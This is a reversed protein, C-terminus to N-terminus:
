KNLEGLLWNSMKESEFERIKNLWKDTTHDKITLLMKLIDILKDYGYKNRFEMLIKAGKFRSYYVYKNSRELDKIPPCEDIEKKYKNIINKYSFDTIEHEMYLWSSLEAISENLWDEWTTTEASNWWKHGLEHALFHMLEEDTKQEIPLVILNNRFYGGGDVRNMVAITLDFIDNNNGFIKKYFLYIDKIKSEIISAIEKGVESNSYISIDVYNDKVSNVHYDKYAILYADNQSKYNLLWQNNIKEGQIVDFEELGNIKINFDAYPLDTRLPYWPSYLNLEIANSKISNVKSLEIEEFYCKYTITLDNIGSNYITLKKGEPIFQFQNFDSIDYDLYNGNAKIDDININKHIIFELKENSVQKNNLKLNCICSYKRNMVDFNVEINYDM